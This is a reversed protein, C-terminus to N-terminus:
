QSPTSNGQYMASRPGVTSPMQVCLSTGITEMGIMAESRSTMGMEVSHAGAATRGDSIAVALDDGSAFWGAADAAVLDVVADGVVEVRHGVDDVVDHGDIGASRVCEVVLLGRVPAAVSGLAVVEGLFQGGGPTYSHEFGGAAPPSWVPTPSTGGPHAHAAGWPMSSM